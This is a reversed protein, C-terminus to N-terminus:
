NPEKLVLWFPLLVDALSNGTLLQQLKGELGNTAIRRTLGQSLVTITMPFSWRGSM